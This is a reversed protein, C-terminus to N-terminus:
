HGKEYIVKGKPLIEQTILFRNEEISKNLEEPTLVFIDKPIFSACMLAVEKIRERYSKSTKKIILLDIDSNEDLNGRVMSGFLIIKEPRYKKVLLNVIRKIEQQYRKKLPKGM